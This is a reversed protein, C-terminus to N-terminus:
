EYKDEKPIDLKFGLYIKNKETRNSNVIDLIQKRVKEKSATCNKHTWLLEVAQDLTFLFGNVKIFKEEKTLECGEFTIPKERGENIVELQKDTLFDRQARRQNEEKKVWELNKLSNDRKNHNLHDVTMNEYSCLPNSTELVLRHALITKSTNSDKPSVKYMVYGKSNINPALLEKRSNKVRGESSVYVNYKRNFKWREVRFIINLM